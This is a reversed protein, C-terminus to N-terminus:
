LPKKLIQAYRRPYNTSLKGTKKILLLNHKQETGDPLFPLTLEKIDIVKACLQRLANESKSLESDKADPDSEKTSKYAIFIGGAKVFPLCLELLVPLTAVARSVAVDFQERLPGFAVDEARKAYFDAQFGFKEAISKTFKLKKETSDLFTIAIDERMIKLPLGPFGAGCGVDIVTAKQPIVDFILPAISDAYHKVAISERDKLATLNTHSNFELLDDTLTEFSFLQSETAPIKNKECFDKIIDYVTL